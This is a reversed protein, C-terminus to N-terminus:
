FRLAISLLPQRGIRAPRPPFDSTNNSPLWACNHYLSTLSCIRCTEHELASPFPLFHFCSLFCASNTPALSSLCRQTLHARGCQMPPRSAPCSLRFWCSYPQASSHLVVRSHILRTTPGYHRRTPQIWLEAKRRVSSRAPLLPALPASGEGLSAKHGSLPQLVFNACPGPTISQNPQSPHAQEVHWERTEMGLGGRLNLLAYGCGEQRRLMQDSSIFDLFLINLSANELLCM